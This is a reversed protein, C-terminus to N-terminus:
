GNLLLMPNVFQGAQLKLVLQVGLYELFRLRVFDGAAGSRRGPVRGSPSGAVLGVAERLNDDEGYHQRTALLFRTFYSMGKLRALM